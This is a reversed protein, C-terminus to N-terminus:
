RTQRLGRVTPPGNSALLATGPIQLRKFPSSRWQPTGSATGRLRWVVGTNDLCVTAKTGSRRKCPASWISVFPRSRRINPPLCYLFHALVGASNGKQEQRM